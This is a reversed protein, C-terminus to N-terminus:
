ILNRKILYGLAMGISFSFNLQKKPTQISSNIKSVLKIGLFNIITDYSQEDYIALYSKVQPFLEKIRDLDLDLKNLRNWFPAVKNYRMAQVELLIGVCVGVGFAAHSNDDSLVEPHGALFKEIIETQPTMQTTSMPVVNIDDELRILYEM